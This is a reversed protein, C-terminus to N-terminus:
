LSFERSISSQLKKGEKKREEKRRGERGGERGREREREKKRGRWTTQPIKTGWDPISGQRRCHFCLTRVVPGYPFERSSKLKMQLWPGQHERKRQCPQEVERCSRWSLSLSLDCRFLPQFMGPSRVGHAVTVCQGKQERIFHESWESSAQAGDLLKEWGQM